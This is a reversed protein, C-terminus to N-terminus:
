EIRKKFAVFKLIIFTTPVGIAAALIYAIIKNWNLLNFFILIVLNQIIFNPVYSLAFKIFKTLSLREKFTIYSNLIYSIVLSSIYGLVFALNVGLILSYLYAFLVGNITNIVGIVLFQMFDKAMFVSKIKKIGTLKYDSWNIIDNGIVIFSEQALRALPADSLSDSYFKSVEYNQIKQNLRKVKEEGYCNKGTYKGNSKNVKSAILNKIGISKCIPALLFEPSASIIVDSPQQQALYWDKIKTKHSTWFLDIASDIDEISNLFRYFNEKLKTKGCIGIIYLPVYFLVIPLYFLLQPQKKICFKYFDLTSDGDYITKDFDYINM